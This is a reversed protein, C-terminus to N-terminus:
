GCRGDVEVACVTGLTECAAGAIRRECIKSQPAPCSSGGSSVGLGKRSRSKGLSSRRMIKPCRVMSHFFVRTGISLDRSCKRMRTLGERGPTRMSAVQRNKFSSAPDMMLGRRARISLDGGVKSTPTRSRGPIMDMCLATMGRLVKTSLSMSDDLWGQVIRLIWSYLLPLSERDASWSEKYLKVWREEVPMLAIAVKMSRM